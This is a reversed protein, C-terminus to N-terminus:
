GVVFNAARYGDEKLEVAATEGDEASGVFGLVLGALAVASTLVVGSRRTRMVPSWVQPERSSWFM